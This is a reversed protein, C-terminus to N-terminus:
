PLFDRVFSEAQLFDTIWHIRQDRQFWTMQRKAYARTHKKIELALRPGAGGKGADFGECVERYGIGSM